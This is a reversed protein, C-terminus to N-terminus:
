SSTTAPKRGFFDKLPVLRATLMLILILLFRIAGQAFQRGERADQIVGPWWSWEVSKIDIFVDLLHVPIFYVCVFILMAFWSWRKRNQYSTWIVTLGIIVLALSAFAISSEYNLREIRDIIFIHRTRWTEAFKLDAPVLSLLCGTFILSSTSVRDRHLKVAM